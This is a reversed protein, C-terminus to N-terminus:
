RLKLLSSLKKLPNSLPPNSAILFDMFEEASLTQKSLNRIRDARFRPLTLLGVGVGWVYPLFNARQNRLLFELNALHSKIIKRKKQRFVERSVNKYVLWILNRAGWYMKKHSVRNGTASGIHYLMASPVFDFRYGRLRCRLDLDVDEVYAFFRGDFYDGNKLRTTTLMSTRYIAGAANPGIAPIDLRPTTQGLARQNPIFGEELYIGSSDYKSTDDLQMTAGQAFGAQPNKEMHTVLSKLWSKDAVTDNNLAIIYTANNQVSLNIGQNIAKAFGLNKNNQILNLRKNDKLWRQSGDSSGNDVVVIDFDTYTQDELSELCRKTLALGNWNLIVISVLAPSM